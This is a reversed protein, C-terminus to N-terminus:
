SEESSKAECGCDGGWHDYAKNCDFLEKGLRKNVSNHLNCFYKVM